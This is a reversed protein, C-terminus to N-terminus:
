LVTGRWRRPRALRALSTRQQVSRGADLALLQAILRAGSAAQALGHFGGRAVDFGQALQGGRECRGPVRGCGSGDHGVGERAAGRLRTGFKKAQTGFQSRRTPIFRSRHRVHLFGEGQASVVHDFRQALCQSANRFARGSGAVQLGGAGGGQAQGLHRAGMTVLGLRVLNKETPDIGIGSVALHQM